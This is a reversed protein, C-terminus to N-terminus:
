KVVLITAKGFSVESYKGNGKQITARCYIPCDIKSVDERKCLEDVLEKKSLESIFQEKAKKRWMEVEKNKMRVADTIGDNM